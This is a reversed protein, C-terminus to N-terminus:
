SVGMSGDDGFNVPTQREPEWNKEVISRAINRGQEQADRATAAAAGSQEATPIVDAGRASGSALDWPSGPPMSAMHLTQTPFAFDVGLEQALRVIDVFLRHRERLETSWDPVEHFAYLLINLSSDAFQNLYVMYYDKRTWPHRRIIERIGECFAEIKEPPTDYQIGLMAKVRRYRRAGHNDVTANVLRSNPLTMVSNYFTRVRTSRIGVEEVTGDVDDVTIWDGIQFPRDILVTLSGFLNEVSDKAALAIAAGGLGLGTLLAGVKMDLNQAAFVLGFAVVLIKISKRVMPVLLDDLKSETKEALGGFYIAGIDVFRYVSWVAAFTAVIEAAKKLIDYADDPLALPDIAVQWFLAAAFLGVPREFGINKTSKELGVRQLLARRVWRGSIFRTVRDIIVGVVVITVLALWQWYKLFFRGLLWAPLRDEFREAWGRMDDTSIVGSMERRSKAQEYLTDIMSVTEASFLWEGKTETLSIAEEESWKVFGGSGVLEGPLTAYDVFKVTDIVAKLRRAKEVGKNKRVVTSLQSLDLCSVASEWDRANVSEILTEFTGAPSSRNPEAHARGSAAIMGLVLLAWPIMAFSPAKRM